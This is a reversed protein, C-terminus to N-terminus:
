KVAIYGQSVMYETFKDQGYCNFHQSDLFDTEYDLGINDVENFLNYYKLGNADAYDYIANYVKESELLTQLNSENNEYMANYPVTYLVLEIDNERCLGVIKDMYYINNETIEGKEDPDVVEIKWNHAVHDSYYRGRASLDASGTASYDAETLSTWRSHYTGLPLYFYIRSDPEILDKVAEVKIKDLPMGDFFMHSMEDNIVDWDHITYSMELYIVKPSQYKIAEQVAYYSMAMTQGSASLMFSDLGYEDYLLDPDISCFSHSNGVFFVSVSKPALDTFRDQMSANEKNRTIYTIKFILFVTLGLFILIGLTRFIYKLATKRNKM